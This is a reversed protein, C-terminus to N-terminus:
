SKGSPKKLNVFEPIFKAVPDDVNLKGEDQLMLISVGTLPKTMSAIWFLSDNTMPTHGSLDADGIARLYLVKDKTVVATVAGSIENKDIMEKMKEPIATSLTDARTLTSALVISIIGLFRLSTTNM